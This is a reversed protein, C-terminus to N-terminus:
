EPEKPKITTPHSVRTVCQKWFDLLPTTRGADELEMSPTATKLRFRSERRLAIDLATETELELGRVESWPTMASTMRPQGQADRALTALMLGVETAIFYRAEGHDRSGTAFVAVDKADFAELIDTIWDVQNGFVPERGAADWADIRM